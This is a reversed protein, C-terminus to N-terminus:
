IGLDLKIQPNIMKIEKIPYQKLKIDDLTLSFFDRKNPNIEVRPNCIISERKLLEKAADIHRDYLHVNAANWTYVGPKYGLCHAVICLFTAYQVQNTTSAAVLWDASRQFMCMDLYDGDEEHRINWVSQYCCPKLAHPMEFDEEQWLNIIHRRGDPNEKLGILLKNMLDHKKVTYGYCAGITNDDLAWPRWWNVKYKNELLTLDNSMDQYIWLLEGIAPKFSIPRLSIIPFEGCSIDYSQSVHNISITHAPTGDCYTARPNIDKRGNLLIDATITKFNWDPYALDVMHLTTNSDDYIM